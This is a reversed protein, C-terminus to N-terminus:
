KSMWASDVDPLGELLVKGDPDTVRINRFRYVGGWTRLGVFGSLDKLSTKWELQMRGDLFCRVTSGRVRVRASIWKQAPIAGQKQVYVKWPAGPGWAEITQARHDSTSVGYVGGYKQDPNNLYALWCDGRVRLLEVDFDYDAWSRDGFWLWVSETPSTQELCGDVIRWKGRDKEAIRAPFSNALKPSSTEAPLEKIEINRFRVTGTHRQLGIRGKPRDLAPIGGDALLAGAALTASVIPKGNVWAQLSRGKVEIELRNWSGAPHQEASHNPALTDTNMLWRTTGTEDAARREVLRLLPHDPIPRGSLTVTEGKLARLAIASSSGQSLNFELRLRFDAYARESLLYGRTKFDKGWAIIEGDAVGWASADGGGVIWGSLDKGNFLPVFGASDDPAKAAPAAGAVDRADRVTEKGEEKLASRDKRTALLAVGVGGLVLLAVAGLIFRLLLRNARRSRTPSKRGATPPAATLPLTGEHRSGPAATTEEIEALAELLAQASPTREAPEKALLQMVLDSFARPVSSEIKRPPPPEATAVAMLTSITDAGKFPLEGTCMRYLVCGLSFLDCRPDLPQGKTQEPAMYAPTGVIAGSQTLQASDATARALGFDLIKVRGTEEELWLNAPKIDRHILGRKHAAALGAATERGIRVVEHFPLRAQRALRQELSEGKLFPMAIFPVGRDEGVLHIPVIHDHEVAAAAQAERLFRQRATESAALAPLMAKLAVKRRLQPDEAEFVVGMGGHGLIKLIRYPGLRGLEDPAQAPALFDSLERTTSGEAGSSSAAVATVGPHAPALTRADALSAAGGAPISVPQKCHPCRVKKGAQEARARVRKGCAPCAFSVAAGASSEAM